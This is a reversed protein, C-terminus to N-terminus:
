SLRMSNKFELRPSSSKAEILNAGISTSSRILQDSIVWASRKSPLTNTLDIITLSFQYCRVRLDSKFKSNCNQSKGKSNQSLPHIQAQQNYPENQAM